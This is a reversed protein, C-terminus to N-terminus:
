VFTELNEISYRIVLGYETTNMVELILRNWLTGDYDDSKPDKIWGTGTTFANEGTLYMTKMQSIGDGSIAPTAANVFTVGGVTKFIFTSYASFDLNQTVSVTTNVLVKGLVESEFPTPGSGGGLNEYLYTLAQIIVNWEDASYKYEPDINALLQLKEWSDSKSGISLPFPNPTPM